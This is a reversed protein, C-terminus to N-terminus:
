ANTLMFDWLAFNEEIREQRTSKPIVTVGRQVNWRLMVQAISKGHAAAIGQLTIVEYLM